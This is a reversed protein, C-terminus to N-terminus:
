VRVASFRMSWGVFSCGCSCRSFPSGLIKQILGLLERPSSSSLLRVPADALTKGGAQVAGLLLSAGKPAFAKQYFASPDQAPM